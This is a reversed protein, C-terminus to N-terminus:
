CLGRRSRRREMAASVVRSVIIHPARHRPSGLQGHGFDFQDGKVERLEMRGRFVIRPPALAEGFPGVHSARPRIEDAVVLRMHGGIESVVVQAVCLRARRLGLQRARVADVAEAVVMVPEVATAEEM